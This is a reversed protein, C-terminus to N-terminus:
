VTNANLYIYENIKFLTGKVQIIDGEKLKKEIDNIHVIFFDKENHLSRVTVIYYKKVDSKTEKTKLKIRSIRGTIELDFICPQKNECMRSFERLEKFTLPKLEM